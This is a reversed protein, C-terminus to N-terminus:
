LTQQSVSVSGSPAITLSGPANGTTPCTNVDRTFYMTITPAQSRESAPPYAPASSYRRVPSGRREVPFLEQEATASSLEGITQSGSPPWTVQTSCLKLGVRVQVTSPSTAPPVNSAATYGGARYSSCELDGNNYQLQGVVHSYGNESPAVAQQRAREFCSAIDQVGVLLEREDLYASLRPAAIASLVSIIAVAILLEVITFARKM